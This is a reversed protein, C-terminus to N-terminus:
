ELISWVTFEDPQASWVDVVSSLIVSFTFVSISAPIM